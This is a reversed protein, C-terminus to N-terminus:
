EYEEERHVLSKASGGPFLAAAALSLVGLAFVVVFAPSLANALAGALERYADSSGTPM